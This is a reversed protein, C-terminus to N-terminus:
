AIQWNQRHWQLSESKPYFDSESPLHIREGHFEQMRRSDQPPEEIIRDVPVIIRYDDDISFWGHDFAWHHNKCLALGNTYNDDKFKSFPRIHAGDVIDGSDRSIIRLKCFACRQGYLSVINRRFTTDRVINEFEKSEKENMVNTSYIAGNERLSYRIDQFSHIQFLNQIQKVKGPFWTSVIVGVLASRNIPSKLLNFLEEDLKAYKIHKRLLSLRNLKFGSDLINEFGAQPELFWFPRFPKKCRTLFFFPQALDAQYNSPSLQSRFKAFTSILELSLYIKNEQILNQEILEIVSLLLLPQYPAKGGVTNVNLGDKFCNSYYNLDKSM